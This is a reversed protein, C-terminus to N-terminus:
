SPGADPHARLLSEVEARLPADGGCAEELYAAREAASGLEVARGFISKVDAFNAAGMVSVGPPPGEMICHSAAPWRSGVSKAKERVRVTGPARPRPGRPVALGPRLDLRPLRHTGLRGSGGGGARRVARRFLAAEG